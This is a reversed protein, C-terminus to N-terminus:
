FSVTFPNILFIIDETVPNESLPEPWTFYLPLSGGSQLGNKYTKSANIVNGDKNYLIAIADFAPLNNVSENRMRAELIPNEKDDGLKMNDIYVPLKDITNEKKVWVLSGTFEFVVSKVKSTASDFRPEFIPFRKSPPIYTVGKRIGLLHNNKDYVRFEYSAQEVASNKNQNEVYAVLNYNSGAVNFARSWLFFLYAVDKKCMLSCTGGCDVGSESGNQKGDTCTPKKFIIPYFIIFLIILCFLLLGGLYQLRRKAAWNMYM